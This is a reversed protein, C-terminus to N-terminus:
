DHPRENYKIPSAVGIRRKTRTEVRQLVHVAVPLRAGRQELRHVRRLVGFGPQDRGARLRRVRPRQQLRQAAAAHVPGVRPRWVREPERLVGGATEPAQPQRRQRSRRIIVVAPLRSRQALVIGGHGFNGGLRRLSGPPCRYPRSVLDVEDHQRKTPNKATKTKTLSHQIILSVPSIM